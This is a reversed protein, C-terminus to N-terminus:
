NGGFAYNQVSFVELKIIQGSADAQNNAQVTGSQGSLGQQAPSIIKRQANIGKVQGITGNVLRYLTYGRLILSSVDSSKKLLGIIALGRAIYRGYGGSFPPNPSVIVIKGVGPIGISNFVQRTAAQYISRASNYLGQVLRSLKIFATVKKAGAAESIHEALDRLRNFWEKPNTPPALFLVMFDGAARLGHAVRSAGVIDAWQAAAELGIRIGLLVNGSAILIVAAVTFVIARVVKIVWGVIKKLWKFLKKFFLGDPDTHNIPDNGCYAYLNLSQPDSLSVAQMGIPDVQTFRGRGANYTRNVAYDLKTTTSRDYSTFRRNNGTIGAGLATGFPLTEQEGASSGDAANTVLRTGLQDPHHFQLAVSTSETALLREGLYVYSKQWNIHVSSVTNYEAMVKDGEWVYWTNTASGDVSKLRQNNAGYTYTALTAGADTKVVKLRNAADYEYRQWHGDPDQGRTLAVLM